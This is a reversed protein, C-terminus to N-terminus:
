YYVQYKELFMVKNYLILIVEGFKDEDLNKGGAASALNLGKVEPDPTQHEVL